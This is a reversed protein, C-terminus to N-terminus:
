EVDFLKPKVGNVIQQELRRWSLGLNAHQERREPFTESLSEILEAQDHCLKAWKQANSLYM